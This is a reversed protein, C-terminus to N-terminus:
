LLFKIFNIQYEEYTVIPARLVNRLEFSGFNKHTEADASGKM